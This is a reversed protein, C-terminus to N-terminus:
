SVAEAPQVIEYHLRHADDTFSASALFTAVDADVTSPIRHVEANDSLRTVIQVVTIEDDGKSQQSSSM